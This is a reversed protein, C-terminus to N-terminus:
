CYRAKDAFIVRCCSVRCFRAQSLLFFSLEAFVSKDFVSEAFFVSQAFVRRTMLFVSEAFHATLSLVRMTMLFCDTFSFQSM